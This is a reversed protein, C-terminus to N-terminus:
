VPVEVMAGDMFLRGMDMLRKWAQSDKVLKVQMGTGGLAQIGNLM